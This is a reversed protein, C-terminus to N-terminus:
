RNGPVKMRLTVLIETIKAGPRLESVEWDHWIGVMDLM